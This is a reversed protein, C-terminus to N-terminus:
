SVIVPRRFTCFNCQQNSIKGAAVVFNWSIELIELFSKLNWSIKGTNGPTGPTTSV